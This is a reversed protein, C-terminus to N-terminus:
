RAYVSTKKKTNEDEEKQPNAYAAAADTISKINQATGASRDRIDQYQGQKAAGLAQVKDMRNEYDMQKRRMLDDQVAAKAGFEQMVGQNLRNQESQKFGAKDMAFGQNYRATDNATAVNKDALGQAVDVNRLQGTNRIDANMRALDQGRQSMRQNFSNIIDTNTAQRGFEENSLEQGMRGSDRMAQLSRAYAEANANQGLLAAREM